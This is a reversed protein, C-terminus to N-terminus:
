KHMKNIICEMYELSDETGLVKSAIVGLPSELMICNIINSFIFSSVTLVQMVHLAWTSIKFQKKSILEMKILISTM